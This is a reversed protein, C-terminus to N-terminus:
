VASTIEEAAFAEVSALVFGAVLVLATDQAVFAEAFPLATGSAAFVMAIDWVALVSAIHEAVFAKM